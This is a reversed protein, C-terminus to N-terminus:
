FFILLWKFMLLFVILLIAWTSIKFATEAIKKSGTLGLVTLYFFRGGDFMGMPIMNFLAVSFNILVLWWLLDYIFIGLNDLSSQYYVSPEKVKTIISYIWGSFGKREIPIVGIGLFAKGDKEDFTINYFKIEETKSITKIEVSDGPNHSHIANGLDEVSTIKEGDLEIIAGSLKAKLAPSNDYVIISSQNIKIDDELVSPPILFEKNDITNIKLLTINTSDLSLSGLFPAGEITKIDSLNIASVSYSNFLVGAPTFAAAFFGWLLLASLIGFIINAFTGASLISLQPFKKLKEMQKDDPEVFAALFPGLFGFGTSRVKIKNLRAFIGHAFEHPIAIIAIILIWYTFYFPPLINNGFLRDVYPVLPLLIPAKLEKALTPSQLYFYTFKALVWIIAGMLIYGCTVSVYQLFGLLGPYKKATKDIIKVGINTRYLYLLGQRQIRKKNSYLFIVLTLIFAALFILDYVIFSM